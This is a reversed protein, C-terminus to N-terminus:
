SGLIEETLATIEAKYEITKGTMAFLSRCRNLNQDPYSVRYYRDNNLFDTLARLGHLFPMLAAGYAVAQREKKETKLGSQKIGLLFAKVMELHFSIKELNTEDEPCPNALTRIADGMDFHLFGPMVTDLDILCQGKGSESSFLFNNLKTDNHCIRLPLGEPSSDSMDDLLAEVFNIEKQARHKREYSANELAFRFEDARKRLDHFGPLIEKLNKAPVPELLRHFTGLIRGAEFAIGPDASYDYSIAGPVFTMLRWYQGHNDIYYPLRSKTYMFAVPHYDEGKLYPLVEQLNYMLGPIDPFVDGNIRQLLFVPVGGDLIRFTENIFGRKLPEVGYAKHDIVFHDLVKKPTTDEM